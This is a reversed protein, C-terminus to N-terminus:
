PKVQTSTLRILSISIFNWPVFYDVFSMISECSQVVVNICVNETFPLPLPCYLPSSDPLIVIHVDTEDDSDSETDSSDSDFLINIIQIKMFWCKQLVTM